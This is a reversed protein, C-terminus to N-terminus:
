EKQKITIKKPEFLELARMLFQKMRKAEFVDTEHGAEVAQHVLKNPDDVLWTHQMNMNKYVSARSVLECGSYENFYEIEIHESM